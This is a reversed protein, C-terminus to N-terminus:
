DEVICEPKLASLRAYQKLEEPTFRRRIEAQSKRLAPTSLKHCGWLAWVDGTWPNVAFFGFSGEAPPVNYGDFDFFPSDVGPSYDFRDPKMGHGYAEAALREATPEDIKWQPEEARALVGHCLVFTSGSVALVRRLSQSFMEFKEAHSFRGCGAYREQLTAPTHPIAAAPIVRRPARNTKGIPITRGCRRPPDDSPVTLARRESCSRPMM